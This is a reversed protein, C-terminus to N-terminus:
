NSLKLESDIGVTVTAISSRMRRLGRIRRRRIM